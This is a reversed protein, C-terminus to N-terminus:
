RSSTPCLEVENGGDSTIPFPCKGGTGTFQRERWVDQRWAKGGPRRRTTMSVWSRQAEAVKIAAAKPPAPPRRLRSLFDRLSRTHKLDYCVKLQM